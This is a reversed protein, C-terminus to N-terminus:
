FYGFLAGFTFFSHKKKMTVLFITPIGEFKNQFNRILAIKKMYFPFIDMQLSMTISFLRRLTCFLSAKKLKYEKNALLHMLIDKYM